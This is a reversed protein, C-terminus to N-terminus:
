RRWMDAVMTVEERVRTARAGRARAMATGVVMAVAAKVEGVRSVVLTEVSGARTVAVLTEAETEAAWVTAVKAEEKEAGAKGIVM